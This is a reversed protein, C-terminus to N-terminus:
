EFHVADILLVAGVLLARLAAPAVEPFSVRYDDFGSALERRLSRIEREIAGTERGDIRVRFVLPDWRRRVIVALREGRSDCIEYRDHMLSVRKRVVGVLGGTPSLVRLAPLILYPPRSLRLVLSEDVRRLEFWLRRRRGLLFSTMSKRGVEVARYLTKRSTNKVLYSLYPARGPLAGPYREEQAVLVETLKGLEDM